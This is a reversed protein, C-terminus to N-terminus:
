RSSVTSSEVLVPLTHLVGDFISQVYRYSATKGFTVSAHNTTVGSICSKHYGWQHMIQSIRVSTYRPSHYIHYFEWRRKHSMWEVFFFLVCSSRCATVVKCSADICACETKLKETKRDQGRKSIKDRTEGTSLWILVIFVSTILNHTQTM